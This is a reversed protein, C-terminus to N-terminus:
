LAHVSKAFGRKRSRMRERAKEGANAGARSLAAQGCVLEAAKLRMVRAVCPLAPECGGEGRAIGGPLGHRSLLWMLEVGLALLPNLPALSLRPEAIPPSPPVQRQLYGACLLRSETGASM